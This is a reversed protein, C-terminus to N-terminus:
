VALYYAVSVRDLRGELVSMRKQTQQAVAGTTEAGGMKKRQEEVKQEWLQIDEDLKAQLKKEQEIEAQCDDAFSFFTRQLGSTVFCFTTIDPLTLM